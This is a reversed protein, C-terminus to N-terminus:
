RGTARTPAQVVLRELESAYTVLVVGRAPFTVVTDLTLLPPVTQRRADHLAEDAPEGPDRVRRFEARIRHAGPRVAAEHLVFLAGDGPGGSGDVPADVAAAGDISVAVRYPAVQRGECIVQQRMHAAQQALEEPTANRCREIREGRAHWSLRLLAADTPHADHRVRSVASVLLLAAVTLTLAVIRRATSM